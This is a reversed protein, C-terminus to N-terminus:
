EHDNKEEKMKKNTYYLGFILGVLIIILLDQPIFAYVFNLTDNIVEIVRM